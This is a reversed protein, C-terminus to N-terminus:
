SDHSCATTKPSRCEKREKEDCGYNTRVSLLSTMGGEGGRLGAPQNRRVHQQSCWRPEELWVSSGTKSPFSILSPQTKNQLQSVQVSVLTNAWGGSSDGRVPARTAPPAFTEGPPQIPAEQAPTPPLQSSSSLSLVNQEATEEEIPTDQSSGLVSSSNSLPPISASVCSPAPSCDASACPPTHRKRRLTDIWSSSHKSAFSALAVSSLRMNKGSTILEGFGEQHAFAYGSRRSWNRAGM